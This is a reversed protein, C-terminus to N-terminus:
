CTGIHEGRLGAEDATRRSMFRIHAWIAQGPPKQYGPLMDRVRWPWQLHCLRTHARRLSQGLLLPPLLLHQDLQPRLVRCLEPASRSLHHAM